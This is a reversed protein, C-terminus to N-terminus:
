IAYRDSLALYASRQRKALDALTTSDLVGAIADRVELWLGRMACIQESPCRSSPCAVHASSSACPTPAVPGDMLRVVEGITVTQAPRALVYGGHAGREARVLGATRLRTMIQELYKAPIATRESLEHVSLPSPGEATSLELMIRTAYDGRSSLKM